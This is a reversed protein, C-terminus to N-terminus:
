YKPSLFAGPKEHPRCSALRRGEMVMTLTSRGEHPPSYTTTIEGQFNYGFDGSFTGKMSAASGGVWCEAEFHTYAGDRRWDQRACEPTAEGPQPLLDDHEADICLRFHHTTGEKEPLITIMEWLGHMRKGPERPGHALATATTALSVAALLTLTRM